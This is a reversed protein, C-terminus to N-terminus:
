NTIKQLMELYNDALLEATGRAYFGTDAEYCRYNFAADSPIYGSNGTIVFTIPFPSNEKIFTGQECFMEYTGTTFGVGGVSFANLELEASMGMAARERIARAQFVSTFDYNKGVEMAAKDDVSKWLDYVEDAQSLMHDWSHDIQVSVMRRCTKIGGETSQLGSLAENALQGLKAGYERWNLGHNEEPIKSIPNQNGSAGTFYAVSAGSLKELEDRLPGVFDAAIQYFGLMTSHDPHAQFNVLVVDKKGNGRAFKVLVMQRDSEAAHGAIKKSFDGFNSGAYSGDEMVYHRVFNMGDILVTTAQTKAPSRDKLANQAAEVMWMAIDQKYQGSKEPCSHAHTAGFFIKEGPIGTAQSIQGRFFEAENHTMAITDVTYLLITEEEESMAICTTYIYDLFGESKRVEANSYGSLGVSYGPTVNVKSFGVQLGNPKPDTGATKQSNGCACLSLVILLLLISRIWSKM